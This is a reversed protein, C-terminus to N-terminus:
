DKKRLKIKKSNSYLLIREHIIETAHNTVKKQTFILLLIHQQLHQTKNTLRLRMCDSVALHAGVLKLAEVPHDLEVLVADIPVSLPLPIM